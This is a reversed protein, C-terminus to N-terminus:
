LWPRTLPTLDHIADDIERRVLSSEDQGLNQEIAKLLPRCRRTADGSMCFLALLFRQARRQEEVSRETTKAPPEPLLMLFRIQNPHMFRAAQIQENLGEYVEHFLGPSINSIGEPFAHVVLKPTLEHGVLRSRMDRVMSRTGLM